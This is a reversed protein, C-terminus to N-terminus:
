ESAGLIKYGGTDTNIELNIAVEYLAYRFEDMAKDSMGLEDGLDGMEEKSSHMYVTKKVIAM